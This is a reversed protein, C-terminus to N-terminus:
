ICSYSRYSTYVCLDGVPLVGRYFKLVTVNSSTFVRLRIQLLKFRILNGPILDTGLTFFYLLYIASNNTATNTMIYVVYMIKTERSWQMPTQAVM